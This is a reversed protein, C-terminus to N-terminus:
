VVIEIHMVARDGRSTAALCSASHDRAGSAIRMHRRGPMARPAAKRRARSREPRPAGRRAVSPRAPAAVAKM